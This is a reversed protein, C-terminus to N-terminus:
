TASSGTMTSGATIVARLTRLPRSGTTGWSRCAGRQRVPLLQRQGATLSEAYPDLGVPTLVTREFNREGGGAGAMLIRM